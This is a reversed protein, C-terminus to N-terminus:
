VEWDLTVFLHLRGGGGLNKNSHLQVSACSTVGLTMLMSIKVTCLDRKRKSMRSSSLFSEM